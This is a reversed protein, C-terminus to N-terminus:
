RSPASYGFPGPMEVTVSGDDNTVCGRATTLQRVGSRGDPRIAFLQDAFASDRLGGCPAAFVIADTVADQVGVIQDCTFVDVFRGCPVPRGPLRTLQRLRLGFIDISFVQPIEAPNTGLPDAGTAFM